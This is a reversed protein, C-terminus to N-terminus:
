LLDISLGSEVQHCGWPYISHTVQWPRILFSSFAPPVKYICTEKLASCM